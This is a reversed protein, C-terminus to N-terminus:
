SPLDVSRVHEACLRWFRGPSQVMPYHGTSMGVARANMFWQLVTHRLLIEPIAPDNRGYLVLTPVTCDVVDAGFDASGWSRLFSALADRNTSQLHLSEIEAATAAHQANIVISELRLAINDLRAIREDMLPGELHAGSAPVPAVLVLSELRGPHYAALHQGVLGGMSHGVLSFREWGLREATALVDVVSTDIDLGTRDGSRAGYGRHDLACVTFEDHNVHSLARDFTHSDAIWGHSM